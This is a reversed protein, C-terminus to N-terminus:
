MPNELFLSGGLDSACQGPEEKMSLSRGELGAAAMALVSHDAEYHSCEGTNESGELAEPLLGYRSQRCIGVFGEPNKGGRVSSGISEYGKGTLNYGETGPAMQARFVGHDLMLGMLRERRQGWFQEMHFVKVAHNPTSFGFFAGKDALSGNHIPDHATRGQGFVSQIDTSKGMLVLLDHILNWFAWNELGWNEGNKRAASLEAQVTRGTGPTMGSLSRLCGRSDVSGRFMPGYCFPSYSGDPRMHAFAEYSEDWREQCFAVCRDGDEEWRRVWCLPIAAMANLGSSVDGVKSPSGDLYNRSYDEGDLYCDVSGDAKVMCPRNDRVFWLNGWDGCDFVGKQFDMHAPKMGVADYLYTVRASPDSEGGSVRFGYRKAKGGSLRDLDTRISEQMERTALYIKKGM